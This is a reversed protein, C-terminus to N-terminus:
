SIICKNTGQEYTVFHHIEELSLCESEDLGCLMDENSFCAYVKKADFQAVQTLIMYSVTRCNFRFLKYDSKMLTKMQKLICERCFHRTTDIFIHKEETNNQYPEFCLTSNSHWDIRVYLDRKEMAAVVYVHFRYKDLVMYWKVLCNSNADRCIHKNICKISSAPFMVSKNYNKITIIQITYFLFVVVVFYDTRRPLKFM